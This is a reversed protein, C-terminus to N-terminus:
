RWDRSISQALKTAAAASGSTSIRSPCADDAVGRVEAALEGALAFRRDHRSLFLMAAASGFFRHYAPEVARAIPLGLMGLEGNATEPNFFFAHSRTEGESAAPLRFLDGVRPARGDLEIATFGLADDGGGVVLGDRGLVELRDVSHALELEAFPGGDLPAVM